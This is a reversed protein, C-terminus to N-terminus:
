SERADTFPHSVLVNYVCQASHGQQQVSDIHEVVLMTVSALLQFIQLRLAAHLEVLPKGSM